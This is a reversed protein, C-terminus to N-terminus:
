EHRTNMQTGEAQAGARREAGCERVHVEKVRQHGRAQHGHRSGERLVRRMWMVKEQRRLRSTRMVEM